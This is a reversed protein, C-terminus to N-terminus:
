SRFMNCTHVLLGRHASSADSVPREIAEAWMAPLESVIKSHAPTLEQRAHGDALNLPSNLAMYEFQTLNEVASELTPTGSIRNM